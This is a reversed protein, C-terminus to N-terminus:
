APLSVSPSPQFPLLHDIWGFGCGRPKPPGRPALSSPLTEHADLSAQMPTPSLLQPLPKLETRMVNASSQFPESQDTRGVGLGIWSSSSM